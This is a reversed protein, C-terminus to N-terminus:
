VRFLSPSPLEGFDLPSLSAYLRGCNKSFIKRGSIKSFPHSCNQLGVSPNSRRALVSEPFPSFGTRMWIGVM